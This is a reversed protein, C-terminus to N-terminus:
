RKPSSPNKNARVPTDTDKLISGMAAAGAARGAASTWDRAAIINLFFILAADLNALAPNEDRLGETMRRSFSHTTGASPTLDADSLLAAMTALKPNDALPAMDAPLAPNQDATLARLLHHPAPQGSIDTTLIMAGIMQFHGASLGAIDALPQLAAIARRELYFPQHQGGRTNGGGDHCLDHAAAAALCLTIDEPSLPSGPTLANHIHCLRMMAVTVERFHHTNHYGNPHATEAAIGALLATQFAASGTELGFHLAAHCLLAPITPAGDTRWHMFVAALQVGQAATLPLASIAPFLVGHADRCLTDDAIFRDRCRTAADLLAQKPISDGFKQSEAGTLLTLVPDLPRHLM